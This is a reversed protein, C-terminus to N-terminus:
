YGAALADAIALVPEVPAGSELWAAASVAEGTIVLDPKPTQFFGAVAQPHLGVPLAALVRDLAPLRRRGRQIFQWVPFLLRGNARYSYLKREAKYRRVTSASLDLHEAVEDTTLSSSDM